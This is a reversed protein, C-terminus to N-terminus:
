NLLNCRFNYFEVKKGSLQLLCIMRKEHIISQDTAELIYVFHKWLVFLAIGIAHNTFIWKLRSIYTMIRFRQSIMNNVYKIQSKCVFPIFIVAAESYSELCIRLCYKNFYFTAGKNIDSIFYITNAFFENLNKWLIKPFVHFFTKAM